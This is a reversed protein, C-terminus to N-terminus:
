KKAASIKPRSFKVKTLHNQSQQIPQRSQQKAANTGIVVVAALDFYVFIFSQDFYAVSFM